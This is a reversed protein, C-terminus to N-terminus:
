RVFVHGPCCNIFLAADDRFVALADADHEVSLGNASEECRAAAKFYAACEDLLDPLVFVAALQDGGTSGFRRISAHLVTSVFGFDRRHRGPELQFLM